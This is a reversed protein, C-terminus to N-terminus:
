RRQKHAGIFENMDESHANEPIGGDTNKSPPMGPTGGASGRLAQLAVAAGTASMNGGDGEPSTGCPLDEEEEVRVGERGRAEVVGRGRGRAVV